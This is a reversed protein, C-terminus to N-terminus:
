VVEGNIDDVIAEVESLDLCDYPIKNDPSYLDNTFDSLKSPMDVVNWETPKGNEDVSKVVIVQGAEAQKPEPIYPLDVKLKRAM